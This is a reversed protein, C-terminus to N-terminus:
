RAGFQGAAGWRRVEKELNESIPFPLEIRPSPSFSCFPRFLLLFCSPQGDTSKALVTKSTTKALARGTYQNEMVYGVSKLSIKYQM